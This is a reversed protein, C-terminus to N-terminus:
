AAELRRRRKAIALMGALALIVGYSSPEPIATATLTLPTTHNGFVDLVGGSTQLPTGAFSIFGDSSGVSIPGISTTLDWTNFSTDPLILLDYQVQDNSAGVTGYTNNVFTSTPTSISYTSGLVTITATDHVVSYGKGYGNATDDFATINAPNAMATLTFPTGALDHETGDDFSGEVFTGTYVFTLQAEARVAFALSM